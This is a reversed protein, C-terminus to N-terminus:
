FQLALEQLARKNQRATESPSLATPSYINVTQTIGSGIKASDRANTVTEGGRFNVIEPGNEGVWHAGPTAYDTGNAYGEIAGKNRIEVYNTTVTTNKDETPEKNWKTLWDWAKKIAGTVKDWNKVLALIGLGLLALAAIVLAIPNLSMTLNFAVMATNALWTAATGIGQAIYLGVIAATLLIDKARAIALQVNHAILAINHLLVIGKQIIWVTTLGVVAVKVLPMINKLTTLAAILIDLARTTLKKVEEKLDFSGTKMNPFINTAIDKVIDVIKKFKPVVIDVMDAIFQKILPMNTQVWTYLDTFIPIVNDKVFKCVTTFVDDIVDFAKSFIEQIQPMNSSAWDMFKQLYPMFKTALSETVAGFKNKLIELQGAFTKGAAEASGGFEKELEKLIVTQAGAMDGTEQLKKIVAKQDETFSVGVRSLATIGKTPDNLAKGLAISQSAADGGLATAMDLATKTALPFTKKGINTFTLLLSEAAQTSEASFKTTKELADALGTLEKKSMGAAGGTSKLVAKLQAISEEAEAADKTGSILAAGLGTLIATGAILAAKGIKGFASGISKSIGGAKKDIKDLKNEIGDDKLLIEGSLSFINIATGGGEQVIFFM